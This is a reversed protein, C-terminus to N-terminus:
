EKQFLLFKRIQTDTWHQAQNDKRGKIKELAMKIREWKKSIDNSQFFLTM